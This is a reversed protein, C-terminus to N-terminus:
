ERRMANFDCREQIHSELAGRATQEELAKQSKLLADAVRGLETELLARQETAAQLAQEQSQALLEADEIDRSIDTSMASMAPMAVAVM